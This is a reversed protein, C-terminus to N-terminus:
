KCMHVHSLSLSLSIVDDHHNNYHLDRADKRLSIEAAQPANGSASLWSNGGDAVRRPTAQNHSNESKRERVQPPLLNTRVTGTGQVGGISFDWGTNKGGRGQNSCIFELSDSNLQM